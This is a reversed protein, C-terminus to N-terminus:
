KKPDRRFGESNNIGRSLCFDRRYEELKSADLHREDPRNEDVFNADNAALIGKLIIALSKAGGCIALHSPRSGMSKRLGAYQNSRGLM